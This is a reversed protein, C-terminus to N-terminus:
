SDILDDVGEIEIILQPRQEFRALHHAVRLAAPM